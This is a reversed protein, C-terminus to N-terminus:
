GGAGTVAEAVIEPAEAMCRSFATKVGGVGCGWPGGAILGAGQFLDSRALHLQQAMHAGSSIGSVTVAGPDLDLSPTPAAVSATDTEACAAAGLAVVLLPLILRNM